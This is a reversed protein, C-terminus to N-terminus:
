SMTNLHQYFRKLDDAGKFHSSSIAKKVEGKLLLAEFRRLFAVSFPPKISALICQLTHRLTVADLEECKQLLFDLPPLTYGLGMMYM